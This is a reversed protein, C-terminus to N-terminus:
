VPAMAAKNPKSNNKTPKKKPSKSKIKENPNDEFAITLTGEISDDISVTAGEEDSSKCTMFRLKESSGYECELNNIRLVEDIDKVTIVTPINEIPTINSSLSLLKACLKLDEDLQKYHQPDSLQFKERVEDVERPEDDKTYRM